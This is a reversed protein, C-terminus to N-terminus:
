SAVRELIRARTFGGPSGDPGYPFEDAGVVLWWVDGGPLTPTRRSRMASGGARVAESYARDGRIRLLVEAGAAAAEESTADDSDDILM